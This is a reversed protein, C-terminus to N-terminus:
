GCHYTCGVFAARYTQGDHEIDICQYSKRKDFDCDMTIKAVTYNCLMESDQKMGYGAIECTTIYDGNELNGNINTIWIGGEGLSNIHLRLDEASKKPRNTGFAGFNYTRDEQLPDESNSIVGFVSKQNQADSLRITPISENITIGDANANPNDYQGSSVVIKGVSGSLTEFDTSSDPLCRHQGTFNMQDNTGGDDIFGYETTDAVFQLNVNTTSNSIRKPYIYWDDDHTYLHIGDTKAPSTNSSGGSNISLRGGPSTTNIGLRKASGDFGAWDTTGYSIVLDNDPRLYIANDAEIYMSEISDNNAYIKTDNSKFFVYDNASFGVNGSSNATVCKSAAVTGATIGDLMELEAEAIAASGLTLSAGSINDTVVLDDGVHLDGSFYAVSNPQIKLIATQASLNGDSNTTYSVEFNNNQTPGRHAVMWHKNNGSSPANTLALTAANSGGDEALIQVRAETGEFTAVNYEDDHDANTVTNRRVHLPNVPTASNIGVWPGDIVLTDDHTGADDISGMVIKQGSAKWGIWGRENSDEGFGVFANDGAGAELTIRKNSSDDTLGFDGGVSLATGPATDGIGVKGDHTIRMREAESSNSTRFALACNGSSVAGATIMALDTSYIDLSLYENGSSSGKALMIGTGQGTSSNKVLLKESSIGSTSGIRVDNDSADVFLTGSDVNLDGTLALTSGDFTLNAEGNINTAGTATVIRNNSGNSLIAGNSAGFGMNSHLVKKTTNDTSDVIVLYDGTAITTGLASLEHADLALTRNTSLNGGGSLGTGATITTSDDAKANLQTQIASTVGDVYNLETTSLTAGDLIELETEDISANGITFGTATVVGNVDLTTSPNMKAIGVRNTNGDFHHRATTGWAIYLDNDPRLHLDQDAEILLDEPNDANAYIRTYDSDFRLEKQQPIKIHGSADATVAKSAEVTGLTTIDLYNLETTTVTAGDLIELETEDIVANGITFGTAKVVGDVELRETVSANFSSDGISLKGDNTLRMREAEGTGSGLQTVFALHSPNTTGVAGGAITPIGGDIGLSIFESTSDTGFVVLTNYNDGTGQIRLREAGAPTAHIGMAAGDYTLNAEANMADTGTATVISNNAGNTMFDSVDVSLQGNSADLGTSAVASIFDAITDRKSSGDTNDRFVISDGAVNVVAESLEHFDLSLVGSSHALGVGAVGSQVKVAGNANLVSTGNIKYDKSSAIDFDINSKWATSAHNYALTFDTGTHALTIGGGDVSSAAAAGDALQLNLDDIQVTTSNVTTTTGNVTLNGGIITNGSEDVTFKSSNAGDYIIFQASSDNDDDLHIAFNVDTRFTLSSDTPGKIDGGSVTLDGDIQLNGGQDLVMRETSDDYWRFEKGSEGGDNDIYFYMDQDARLALYSDTTGWIDGGAVTLDGAVTLNDAVTVESTTHGITIPAASTDTGIKMASGNWHISVDAGNGFWIKDSDQMEFDGNGDLILVKNAASNSTGGALKNLEATTVSAGDLIELETEDIEANGITFGTAKVVGNVELKTTPNTTGIGVDGGSEIRMRETLSGTNGDNTHHGIVMHTGDPVCFDGENTSGGNALFSPRNNGPNAYATGTITLVNTSGDFTLNSEGNLAAPGTATVVRNDQLNAKTITQADVYAKVAASTPLTTDNDNSGIGESEIVVAAAALKAFTIGSDKVRLSDSNIEVTSDDVNLTVTVTNSSAATAIGVGGAITLTESDLDIAITGSDSTVDLDELTIKADVYDKVAAASPVKTDVDNSSIGQSEIVVGAGSYTAASVYGAATVNSTADVTGAYVSNGRVEQWQRGSKGIKGQNNSRPVVDKTM